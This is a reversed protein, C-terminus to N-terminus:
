GTTWGGLCLGCQCEFDEPRLQLEKNAGDPTTIAVSTEQEMVFIGGQKKMNIPDPLTVLGLLIIKNM